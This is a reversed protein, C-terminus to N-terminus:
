ENAANDLYKDYISFFKKIRFARLCISSWAIYHFSVTTLIGLLCESRCDALLQIVFNIISDMMLATGGVIILIPSRSTVGPHDKYSFVIGLLILYVAIVVVM